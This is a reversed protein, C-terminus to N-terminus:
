LDVFLIYWDEVQPRIRFRLQSVRQMGHCIGKVLFVVRQFGQYSAGREKQEKEIIMMITIIIIKNNINNKNNNNNSNVRGM